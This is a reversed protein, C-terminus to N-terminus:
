QHLKLTRVYSTQPAKCGSETLRLVAYSGCGKYVSPSSCCLQWWHRQLHRLPAAIGISQAAGPLWHRCISDAAPRM